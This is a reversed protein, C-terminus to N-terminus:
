DPFQVPPLPLSQTRAPVRTATSGPEGIRRGTPGDPHRGADRTASVSTMATAHVGGGRSSAGARGGLEGVAPPGGACAPAETLRRSAHGAEVVAMAEGVAEATAQEIPLVKGATWAADFQSESLSTRAISLARGYQEDNGITKAGVGDLYARAAALWRTARDPHGALLAVGTLGSLAQAVGMGDRIATSLEASEIYCRGAAVADGRALAVQGVANLAGTAYRKEPLQRAVVLAEASWAAAREYDREIYAWDGLNSLTHALGYANDAERFCDLAQQHLTGDRAHDGQRSAQVALSILAWGMGAHDGLARALELSSAAAANALDFRGINSALLAIRRLARMRDQAPTDSSDAVARELWEIGQHYLGILDWLWAAATALRLFRERQGSVELWTLAARINVQNGALSPAQDVDERSNPHEPDAREALALFYAAHADRITAEEGSATLREVGFERITELMGFYPGGEVEHEIRHLLSKDALLGISDLASMRAANSGLVAEAAEPTFGGVFVALQQFLAQEGPSLLDYSWSIAGYMTQLRVPQDRPGGTLLPLRCALRSLLDAPPLHRVRAAALEIALPLGDLRGCIAAVITANEQNLVFDPRVARARDVFLSVAENAALASLSNAAKAHLPVPLQLPPVLYSQEGSVGLLARSTVLATLRPCAALLEVLLPGAEVLREFNDLVLLLHKDRLYEILRTVLPEAELERVGLAQALTAAVLDSEALPALDVFQVGDGYREAITHVLAIALRTKGVGGPGTLTLLRTDEDRLGTELTTLEMERGILRTLPAPLSVHRPKEPEGRDDQWVGPRAAALLAVRDEDRLGLGYALLRVTELHPAAHHGRELNSISNRSLGARAALAEQSLAAASRLRRLLVGFPM